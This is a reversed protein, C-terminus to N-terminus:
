LGEMWANFERGTSTEGPCPTLSSRLPPLVEHSPEGDKSCRYFEFHADRDLQFCFLARDEMRRYYVRCNGNDEAVFKLGM